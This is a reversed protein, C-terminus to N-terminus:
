KLRIIEIFDKLFIGTNVPENTYSICEFEHFTHDLEMNWASFYLEPLKWEHAYFWTADILKSIILKGFDDLSINNPNAFVICNFNKYNGGDRYLYSFKINHM